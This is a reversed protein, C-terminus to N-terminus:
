PRWHIAPIPVQPAKGKTNQSGQMSGVEGGQTTRWRGWLTAEGYVEMSQPQSAVGGTLTCPCSSLLFVYNLLYLTAFRVAWMDDM